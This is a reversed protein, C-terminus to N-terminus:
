TVVKLHNCYSLVKYLLLIIISSESRESREQRVILDSLHIAQKIELQSIDGAGSM